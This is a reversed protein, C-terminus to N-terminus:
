ARRGFTARSMHTGTVLTAPMPRRARHVPGSAPVDQPQCEAAAMAAGARGFSPAARALETQTAVSVPAPEPVQGSPPAGKLKKSLFKLAAFGGVVAWFIGGWSWPRDPVPPLESMGALLLLMQLQPEPITLYERDSGIHGVWEGGSFSHFKYGLDMYKGDPRQFAPIRPLEKVLVLTEGRLGPIPPMPIGRGRRAEADDLPAIIVAILLAM